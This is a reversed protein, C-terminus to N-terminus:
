QRAAREADRVAKELGKQKKIDVLELVINAGKPGVRFASDSFKPFKLKKFKPNNSLAFPEKPVKLMSKKLKRNGDLDHYGAVAYRGPNQITMCVTQPGNQAPVRVRRVRGKKDLFNEPDNYLELTLIGQATVNRVTVRVQFANPNCKDPLEDRYIELTPHVRERGVNKGGKQDSAFACPRYGFVVVLCVALLIHRFSANM